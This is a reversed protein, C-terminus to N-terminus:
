MVQQGVGPHVDGKGVDGEQVGRGRRELLKVQGVHVVEVLAVEYKGGIGQWVQPLQMDRAAVTHLQLVNYLQRAQSSSGVQM